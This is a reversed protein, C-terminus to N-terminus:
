SNFQVLKKLAQAAAKKDRQLDKIAQGAYAKLRGRAVESFVGKAVDPNLRMDTVAATVREAEIEPVPKAGNLFVDSVVEELVRGATNRM